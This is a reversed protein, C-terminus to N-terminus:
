SRRYLELGRCEYRRCCCQHNEGFSRESAQHARRRDFSLGPTHSCITSRNSHTPRVLTGGDELEHSQLTGPPSKSRRMDGALNKALQATWQENNEPIGGSRITTAGSRPSSGGSTEGIRKPSPSPSKFDHRNSVPFIGTGKEPSNSSLLSHNLPHSSVANLAPLLSSKGDLSPGESSKTEEEDELDGWPISGKAKGLTGSAKATEASSLPTNGKENEIASHEKPPTKNNLQELKEDMANSIRVGLPVIPTGEVSSSKDAASASTSTDEASSSREAASASTSTDEASSSKDETGPYVNELITTAKRKRPPTDSLGSLLPSGSRRRQSPNSSLGLLRSRSGDDIPSRVPFRGSSPVSKPSPDKSAKAKNGKASM